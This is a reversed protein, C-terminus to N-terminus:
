LKQIKMFYHDYPVRVLNNIVCSKVKFSKPILNEYDIPKRVFDGKDKSALYKAILRQKQIYVPDLTFIEGGNSLKNHLNKFLKKCTDDDLHHLIGIMIVSDVRSISLMGINLLDETFFQDEPFKKKASEIHKSNIDIGIYKDTNLYKRYTGPGCGCDFVVSNNKLDIIENFLRQHTNFKRLLFQFFKYVIPLDLFNYLIGSKESPNYENM